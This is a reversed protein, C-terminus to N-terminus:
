LWRYYQFDSEITDLLAIPMGASVGQTKRSDDANTVVLGNGFDISQLRDLLQVVPVNPVLVLALCFLERASSPLKRVERSTCLEPRNHRNSACSVAQPITQPSTSIDMPVKASAVSASDWIRLYLRAPRQEM